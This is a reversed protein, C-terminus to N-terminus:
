RRIIWEPKRELVNMVVLDVPLIVLSKTRHSLFGLVSKNFHEAVPFFGSVFQNLGSDDAL